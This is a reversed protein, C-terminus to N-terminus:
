NLKKSLFDSFLDTLKNVIVGGGGHGGTFVFTDADPILKLVDNVTKPDIEDDDSAYAIHIPINLESFVKYDPLFDKNAINRISSLLSYETGPLSLQTIYRNIFEEQGENEHAWQEARNKAFPIGFTRLFLNGIVPVKILGLVKSNSHVLPVQLGIALIRESYNNSFNIAIPAGMSSGYLIADKIDLFDLLERLQETYLLMNYNTIPRDSYGRGYQDYCIVRYGKASLGSCFGIFGESPLTAGHIVIIAPDDKNGIDKYATIGQSLKAFEYESGQRYEDLNGKEFSSFLYILLILILFALIILVTNSFIGSFITM